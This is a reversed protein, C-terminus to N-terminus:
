SKSNVFIAFSPHRQGHTRLASKLGNEPHDYWGLM